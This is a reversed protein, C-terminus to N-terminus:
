VLRLRRLSSLFDFRVRLHDVEAITVGTRASTVSINRATFAPDLWFWQSSLRGIAVEQGTRESLERALDDAFNDVNRTLQRGLGAYLAFLLLVVLLLWWILSSLRAAFRVPASEARQGPGKTNHNAASM